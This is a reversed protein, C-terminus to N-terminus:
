RTRMRGASSSFRRYEQSRSVKLLGTWYLLMAYLCCASFSWAPRTLYCRRVLNLPRVRPKGVTLPKFRKNFSDALIVAQLVEDEEAIDKEKGSSSKPSMCSIETIFTTSAAETVRVAWGNTHSSRLEMHVFGLRTVEM